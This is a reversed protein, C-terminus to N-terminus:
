KNSPNISLTANETVVRVKSAGPVYQYVVTLAKVVNPWSDGFTANNAAITLMDYQVAARVKTTVDAQGYSAGLITLPPTIVIPAGETVVMMVPNGNSYEYVLTFTKPVNPWSDGFAGNNATFNLGNGALLLKVMPTVDARGYAAGLVNMEGEVTNRWAEAPGTHTITGSQGESLVLTRPAQNSFRYVIALSKPVGPWTDGFTANSATVSLQDNAILSRIKSTVDARGYSAGLIILDSM